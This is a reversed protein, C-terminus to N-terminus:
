SMDKNRLLKLFIVDHHRLHSVFDFCRRNTQKSWSALNNKYTHCATTKTIKKIQM